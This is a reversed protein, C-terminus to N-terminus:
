EGAGDPASEGEVWGTGKVVRVEQDTVAQRLDAVPGLRPVVADPWAEALPELVFRRDTMRPHPVRLGPEDVVEDGHLLVDVDLTRPGWRERRLRGASAEAAKGIDLLERATLDSEVVIVANLFDGQDPGGIPATEYLSSVAVM